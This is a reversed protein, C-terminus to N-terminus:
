IVAASMVAIAVAAPDGSLIGTPVRPPGNASGRGERCVRGVPSHPNGCPEM